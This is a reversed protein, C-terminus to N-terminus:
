LRQRIPCKLGHTQKPLDRFVELGQEDQSATPWSQAARSTRRVGGLKMNYTQKEITGLVAVPVMSGTLERGNMM